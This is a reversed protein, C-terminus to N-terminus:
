VDRAFTQCCSLHAQYLSEQDYGFFTEEGPELTRKCIFCVLNENKCPCIVGTLAKGQHYFTHTRLKCKGPNITTCQPHFYCRQRRGNQKYKYEVMPDYPRIPRHCHHCIRQRRNNAKLTYYQELPKARKNRDKLYKQRDPDQDIWKDVFFYYLRYNHDSPHVFPPFGAEILQQYFTQEAIQHAMGDMKHYQWRYGEATLWRHFEHFINGSCVLLQDSKTVKAKQLMEIVFHSAMQEITINEEWTLPIKTTYVEPPDESVLVLIESFARCGGGADEVYWTKVRQGGKKGM